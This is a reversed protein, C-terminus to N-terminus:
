SRNLWLWATICYELHDLIHNFRNGKGDKYVMLTPYGKVPISRCLDINEEKTCDVQALTMPPQENVLLDAAKEFTNNSQFTQKVEKLLTIQEIRM